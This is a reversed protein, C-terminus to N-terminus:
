RPSGNGCHAQWSLHRQSAGLGGLATFLVVNTLLVLRHLCVSVHVAVVHPDLEAPAKSSIKVPSHLTLAELIQTGLRMQIVQASGFVPSSPMSWLGMAGLRPVAPSPVTVLVMGPSFM